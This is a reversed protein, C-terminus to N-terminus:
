ILERGYPLRIQHSLIFAPNWNRVKSVVLNRILSPHAVRGSRHQRLHLNSADLTTPIEAASQVPVPLRILSGDVRQHQLRKDLRAGQPHLCTMAIVIGVIVTQVIQVPASRLLIGPVFNSVAVAVFGVFSMTGLAVLVGLLVSVSSGSRAVSLTTDTYPGLVFAIGVNISGVAWLTMWVVLGVSIAWRARILAHALCAHSFASPLVLTRLTPSYSINM